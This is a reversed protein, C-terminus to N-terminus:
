RTCRVQVCGVRVRVCRTLVLLAFMRNSASRAWRQAIEVLNPALDVGYLEGIQPHLKKLATLYAGAAFM